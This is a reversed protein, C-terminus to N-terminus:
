PMRKEHKRRCAGCLMTDKSIDWLYFLQYLDNIRHFLSELKSLLYCRNTRILIDCLGCHTHYSM